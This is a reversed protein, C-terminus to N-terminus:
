RSRTTPSILVSNTEPTSSVSDAGAIAASIWVQKVGPSSQVPKTTDSIAAALDSTSTWAYLKVLGGMTLAKTLVVRM